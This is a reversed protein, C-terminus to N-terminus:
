NFSGSDFGANDIAIMGYIKVLEFKLVSGVFINKKFHRKRKKKKCWSTFNFLVELLIDKKKSNKKQGM